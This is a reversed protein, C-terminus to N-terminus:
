RKASKQFLRFSYGLADFKKAKIDIIQAIRLFSMNESLFYMPIEAGTTYLIRSFLIFFLRRHAPGVRLILEFRFLICVSISRFCASVFWAPQLSRFLVFQVSSFHVCFSVLYLGHVFRVAFSRFLLDPGPPSGSFRVAPFREDSSSGFRAPAPRPLASFSSSGAPRFPRLGHLRGRFSLEPRVQNRQSSSSRLRDLLGGSFRARSVVGPCFLL